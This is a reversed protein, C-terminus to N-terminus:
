GPPRGPSVLPVAIFNSWGAWDPLPRGAPAPAIARTFLAQELAEDTLAAVLPWTLGSAGFRACYDQVTTRPVGLSRAAHRESLGAELRLRLVERIMRM